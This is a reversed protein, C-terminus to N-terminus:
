KSVYSKEMGMQLCDAVDEAALQEIAEGFARGDITRSIPIQFLFPLKPLYGSGKVYDNVSGPHAQLEKKRQDFKTGM